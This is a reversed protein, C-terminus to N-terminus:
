REYSVKKSELNYVENAESQENESNKTKTPLTFLVLVYQLNEVFPLSLQLTAETPNKKGKLCLELLAKLFAYIM